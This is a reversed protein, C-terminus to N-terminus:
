IIIPCLKATLYCSHFNKKQMLLVRIQRFPLLFGYRKLFLINSLYKTEWLMFRVNFLYIYQNAIDTGCIDLFHISIGMDTKKRM